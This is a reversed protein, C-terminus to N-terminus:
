DIMDGLDSVGLTFMVLAFGLPVKVIAPISFGFRQRLASNAPPFFMLSVLVYAFGPVPHVLVLNAIGVALIVTAFLWGVANSKMAHESVVSM